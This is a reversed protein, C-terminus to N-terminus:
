TGSACRMQEECRSINGLMDKNSQKLFYFDKGKQNIKEMYM